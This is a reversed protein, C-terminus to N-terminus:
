RTSQQAAPKRLKKIARSHRWLEEMMLNFDKIPISVAEPERPKALIALKVPGPALLQESHLESLRQLWKELDTQAWVARDYMARKTAAPVVTKM